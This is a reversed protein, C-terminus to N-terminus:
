PVVKIVSFCGFLPFTTAPADWGQPAATTRNAAQMDVTVRKLADLTLTQIDQGIGAQVNWFAAQDGASFETIGSLDIVVSDAQAWNFGAVIHRGYDGEIVKFDQGTTPQNGYINDPYADASADAELACYFKNGTISEGIGYKKLRFTGGVFLNDEVTAETCGATLSGLNLNYNADRTYFISNRIIPMRVTTQPGSGGIIANSNGGGGLNNCFVVCNEITINRLVETWPEPVESAYCHLGYAFNSFLICNRIILPTNSANAAYIGHGHGRDPAVWGCFYIICDEITCGGSLKYDILMGQRTDHIITNLLDCNPAEARWGDRTPIDAPASGTEASERYTFDADYIEVGSISINPLYVYISGDIKVSTKSEVKAEGMGGFRWDADATYAGPLIVVASGTDVQANDIEQITYPNGLTGEGM